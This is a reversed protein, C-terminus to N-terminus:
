VPRGASWASVARWLRWASFARGALSVLGHRRFAVLAAVAAAVFVPHARLFRAIGMGRDVIGIPDRWQRFSEGIALRQEQARAALREKRRAIDILLENSRNM